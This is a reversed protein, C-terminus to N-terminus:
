NTNLSGQVDILNICVELNCFSFLNCTSNESASRLRELFRNEQIKLNASAQKRVTPQM